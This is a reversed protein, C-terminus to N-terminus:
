KLRRTCSQPFLGNFLGFYWFGFTTLNFSVSTKKLKKILFVLGICGTFFAVGLLKNSCRIFIGVGCIGLALEDKTMGFIKIPKDLNYGVRYKKNM